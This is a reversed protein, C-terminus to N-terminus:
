RGDAPAWKIGKVTINSIESTNGPAFSADFKLIPGHAVGPYGGFSSLSNLVTLKYRRGVYFRTGGDSPLDVGLAVRAHIPDKGAIVACFDESAEKLILRDESSARSGDVDIFPDCDSSAASPPDMVSCSALLVLLLCISHRPM